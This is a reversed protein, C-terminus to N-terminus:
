NSGSTSNNTSTSELSKAISELTPRITDVLYTRVALADNVLTDHASRAAQLAAQFGDPDTKCDVAKLDSLSQKYATLDTNYTTIKSKLETIQQELTTTDVSKAKLNTTLKDLRSELNDYAKTRTVVSNGFRTQLVGIKTQAAV